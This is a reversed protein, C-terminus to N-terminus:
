GNKQEILQIIKTILTENQKLQKDKEEILTKKENIQREKEELLSDKQELQQNRKELLLDRQKINQLKEKILDDKQKAQMDRKQILADKLEIQKNKEKILDDKQKAQMDRKQILADKLEIQKNKGKLLADKRHLQHEKEKILLILEENRKQIEKHHNLICNKEQILNLFNLINEDNKNIEFRKIHADARKALFSKLFNIFNGMNNFRLWHKRAGRCKEKYYDYNNKLTLLAEYFGQIDGDNFTVGNGYKEICRGVWTESTAIVPKEAIVADMYIGSSRAFFEEKRYPILILDAKHFIEKYKNNDITGEIIKASKIISNMMKKNYERILLPDHVIFSYNEGPNEKEIKKILNAVLGYGREESASLYLVCFPREKKFDEFKRDLYRPIEDMDFTSFFAPVVPIKEHTHKYIEASLSEMEVCLSVGFIERIRKTKNLYFKTEKTINEIPKGHNFFDAYSHFLNLVFADKRNNLKFVIDLLVPIHNLGAMYWFFVNPTTKDSENIYQLVEYLENSFLKYYAENDGRKILIWEDETFAPIVKLQRTLEPKITKNGLAVFDGGDREIAKKIKLSQNMHHGFYGRLGPSITIVRYSKGPSLISEINM